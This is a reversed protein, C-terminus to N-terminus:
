IWQHEYLTSNLKLFTYARKYVVKELLKLITMLLSIPRYKIILDHEKGKYLPIVEALKMRNPFVGQM